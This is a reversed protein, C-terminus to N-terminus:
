REGCYDLLFRCLRGSGSANPQWPTFWPDTSCYRESTVYEGTVNYRLIGRAYADAKEWEGRKMWAEIWCIEAVGTYYVNGYLGPSGCADNTMRGALGHEDDLMGMERYFNEMQVFLPSHPDMIGLKILYPCGDTYFCHSYSDEFDVGLIHPMNYSAEGAHEDAFKQQVALVVGRYEAYVARVDAAEPAGFHDYCDAMVGLGYVNVADTYTWHQGIENWDSAQGASFLGKVQGPACKEPDRRSQIYELALNMWPRFEEFLARDEMALLHHATAWLAAGNTNDWKVYPNDLKGREPGDKLQWVRYWMRLPDTCFEGLGVDDLVTTFHAAEWVWQFRGVDGQRTYMEDPHKGEYHQFMQLMQTINQRFMDELPRGGRPLKKVKKQVNKWWATTEALAEDYGAPESIEGRRLVFRVVAKQGPELTYAFRYYDHALFRNKQEKRSVWRVSCNERSLVRMWGYGDACAATLSGEELPAFPNEWCLYWQGVNPNYPEYGTDHLGTLYHDQRSYRPLLGMTGSVPYPHPNEATLEGYTFPIRDLSSFATLRIPCGNESDTNRLSYIPLGDRPKEWCTLELDAENPEHGFLTHVGIGPLNYHWGKDILDLDTIKLDPYVTVLRQSGHPHLYVRSTKPREWAPKQKV